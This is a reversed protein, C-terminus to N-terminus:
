KKDNLAENIEVTSILFTYPCDMFEFEESLSLQGIKEKCESKDKLSRELEYGNAEIDDLFELVTNEIYEKAKKMSSFLYSSTEMDDVYGVIVSYLIIRTLMCYRKYEEYANKYNKPDYEIGFEEEILKIWLSNFRHNTYIRSLSKCTHCLTIVEKVSLYKLVLNLEDTNLQSLM